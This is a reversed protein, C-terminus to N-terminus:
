RQGQSWLPLEFRISCRSSAMAEALQFLIARTMQWGLQQSTIRQILTHETCFNPWPCIGLCNTQSQFQHPSPATFNLDSASLALNWEVSLKGTHGTM